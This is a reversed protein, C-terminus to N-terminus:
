LVIKKHDGIDTPPKGTVAAKAMAFLQMMRSKDSDWYEASDITVGILTVHPDEIGKPFWAGVLPNAGRHGRGATELATRLAADLQQTTIM